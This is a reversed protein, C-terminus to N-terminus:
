RGNPAPHTVSANVRAIADLQFHARWMLLFAVSLLVCVVVDATFARVRLRLGHVIVYRRLLSTYRDRQWLFVYWAWLSQVTTITVYVTVFVFALWRFISFLDSM